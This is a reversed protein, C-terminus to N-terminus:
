SAPEGAKRKEPARASRCRIGYLETGLEHPQEADICRCLSLGAVVPLPMRSWEGLFREFVEDRGPGNFTQEPFLDGTQAVAFVNGTVAGVKTLV